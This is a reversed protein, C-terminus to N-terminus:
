FLGHRIFLSHNTIELWDGMASIGKTLWIKFSSSVQLSGICYKLDAAQKGIKAARMVEGSIM